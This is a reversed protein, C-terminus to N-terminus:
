SWFKREWPFHGTIVVRRVMLYWPGIMLSLAVVAVWPFPPIMVSVGHSPHTKRNALDGDGSIDFGVQGIWVSIPNSLLDV